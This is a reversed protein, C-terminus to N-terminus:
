QPLTDVLLVPLNMLSFPIPLVINKKDLVGQYLGILNQKENNVCHLKHWWNSSLQNKKGYSFVLPQMLAKLKHDPCM